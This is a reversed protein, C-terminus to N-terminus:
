LLGEPKAHLAAHFIKVQSACISKVGHRRYVKMIRKFKTFSAAHRLLRRKIGTLSFESTGVPCVTRGKAQHKGTLGQRLLILQAFLKRLICSGQEPFIEPNIYSEAPLAFLSVNMIDM